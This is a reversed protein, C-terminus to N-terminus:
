CHLGHLWHFVESAFINVLAVRMQWIIAYAFTITVSCIICLIIAPLVIVVLLGAQAATNAAVYPEFDVESFNFAM